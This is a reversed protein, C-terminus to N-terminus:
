CHSQPSVDGLVDHGGGSGMETRGAGPENDRRREERNTSLM